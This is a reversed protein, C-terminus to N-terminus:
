ERGILTHVVANVAVRHHAAMKVDVRLVDVLVVDTEIGVAHRDRVADLVMVPLQSTAANDLYHLHRGRIERALIPFLSRTAAPDFSM